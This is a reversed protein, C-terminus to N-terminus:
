CMTERKGDNSGGPARTLFGSEWGWPLIQIELPSGRSYTGWILRLAGGQKPGQVCHDLQASCVLWYRTVVKGERGVGSRMAPSVM